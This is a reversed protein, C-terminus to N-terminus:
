KDIRLTEKPRIEYNVDFYNLYITVCSKLIEVTKGDYAINAIEFIVALGVNAYAIIPNLNGLNAKM